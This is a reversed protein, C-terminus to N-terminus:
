DAAFAVCTVTTPLEAEVAVSSCVGGYDLAEQGDEFRGAGVGAVPAARGTGAPQALAVAVGVVIAAAGGGVHSAVLALIGVRGNRATLAGLAPVIRGIETIQRRIIHSRFQPLAIALVHSPASTPQALHTKPKSILASNLQTAFGHIDAINFSFSSM